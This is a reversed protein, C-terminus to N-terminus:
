WELTVVVNDTYLGASVNQRAPIIGYINHTAQATPSTETLIPLTNLLPYSGGTGDGWVIIRSPEQFLNYSLSQAGNRMQRPNFSGSFGRNLKVTYSVIENGAFDTRQCTIRVTGVGGQNAIPSLTNYEYFVVPITSISCDASFGKSSAILMVLFIVKRM